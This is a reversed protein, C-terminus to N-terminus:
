AAATLPEAPDAVEILQYGHREIIHAITARVEAVAGHCQLLRAAGVFGKASAWVARRVLQPTTGAAANSRIQHLALYADVLQGLDRLTALEEAAWSRPKGDIACFSGITEGTLASLPVGAYAIVGLDDVAGNKRLVEHNRADAVVVEEDSSVVWQCFSHSLPTQRRQNWPEPLGVQSKFFQRREDVLSVLAVPTGVLRAALRTVIDLEEDPGSDMMGTRRLATLRAEDGLIEVPAGPVKRGSKLRELLASIVVATEIPLDLCDEAGAALLAQKAPGPQTLAIIPISATHVSSRLRRLALLAGGAPLRAGLIVAGPKHRLAMTMVAVADAALVLDCGEPKLAGALEASSEADGGAVLVKARDPM